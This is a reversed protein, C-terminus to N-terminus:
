VMVTWENSKIEGSDSSRFRGGEEYKAIFAEVESSLLLPWASQIEVSPWDWWRIRELAEIISESFRLRVQRAPNGAVISYPPVDRTVVSRAAIVAGNGITVGSLIFADMGIWVDNGISVGGKTRPHGEFKEAEKFVFNFPYTTIWDVRHEGGLLITVGEAISCFKGITLSAGEKWSIIKPKGYTWEGIQYSSYSTDRSTFFPDPEVHFEPRFLRGFVRRYLDRVM